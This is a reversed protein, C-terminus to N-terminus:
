VAALCDAIADLCGNWGTETGKKKDPELRTHTIVVETTGDGRDTFRIDVLSPGEVKGRDSRFHFTHVLRREPEVKEYAGDFSWKEGTERNRIEQRWRGGPRCDAEISLTEHQRGWAWQAVIKPDTWARFVASVPAKLIRRVQVTEM